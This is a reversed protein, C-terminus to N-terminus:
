KREGDNWEVENGESGIGKGRKEEYQKKSYGYVIVSYPKEV